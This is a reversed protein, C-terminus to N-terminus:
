PKRALRSDRPFSIKARLGRGDGRSSQTQSRIKEFNLQGNLEELIKKFSTPTTEEEIDADLELNWQIETASESLSVLIENRIEPDRLRAESLAQVAWLGLTKWVSLLWSPKTRYLIQKDSLLSRIRLGKTRTPVELIKVFRNMLEILDVETEPDLSPDRAYVLLNQVIDRCKLIGREIEAVDPYLSDTPNLDAKLMQAFTLLGALPNNLEHALSSSITGMEILRSTELWRRELELTETVDRYFHSYVPAPESEIKQGRVEWVQNESRIQFSGGLHCSPCPAERKFLLQHCKTGSAYPRNGQVVQYRDDILLLPESLSEFTKEWQHRIAKLNEFEQIAELTLSVSEAVQTLYESQEKSFAQPQSAMFFLSGTKETGSYLFLRHVQYDLKQHIEQSFEDDEPKLFIRIWQFDFLQSLHDTLAKELDNLTRAAPLQMLLKQFAEVREYTVFLKRRIETLYKARKEVRAELENQLSELKEAEEIQLQTLLERQKRNQVISAAEILNKELDQDNQREAFFDIPFKARLAHLTEVPFSPDCDVVLQLSSNKKMWSHYLEPFITEELHTISLFIVDYERREAQALSEISEAGWKEKFDASWPGILLIKSGLTSM